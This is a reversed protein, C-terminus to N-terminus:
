CLHHPRHDQGTHHHHGAVVRHVFADVPTHVIWFITPDLARAHEKKYVSVVAQMVVVVCGVEVDDEGQSVQKQPRKNYLRLRPGFAANIQM